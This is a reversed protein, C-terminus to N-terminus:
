HGSESGCLAMGRVFIDAKCERVLSVVVHNSVLGRGREGDPFFRVYAV